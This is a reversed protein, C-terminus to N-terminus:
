SRLRRLPLPHVEAATHEGKIHDGDFLFVYVGYAVHKKDCFANMLKKLPANRNIRFFVQSGDQLLEVMVIEKSMM